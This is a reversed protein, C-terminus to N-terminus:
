LGGADMQISSHTCGRKKLIADPVEIFGNSAPAGKLRGWGPPDVHSRQTLEALSGPSLIHIIIRDKQGPELSLVFRHHPDPGLTTCLQAELRDLYPELISRVRPNEMLKPKAVALGDVTEAIGRKELEPVLSGIAADQEYFYGHTTFFDVPEGACPSPSAM